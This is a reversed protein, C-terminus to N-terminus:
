PLLSLIKAVCEASHRSALINNNSHCHFVPTFRLSGWMLKLHLNVWPNSPSVPQLGLYNVIDCSPPARPSYLKSGLSYGTVGMSGM